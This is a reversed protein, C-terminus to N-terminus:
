KKFKLPIKNSYFNTFVSLEREDDYDVICHTEMVVGSNLYIGIYVKPNQNEIKKLLNRQPTDIGINLKINIKAKSDSNLIESENVKINFKTKDNIDKKITQKKGFDYIEDTVNHYTLKNKKNKKHSLYDMLINENSKCNQVGYISLRVPKVETAIELGDITKVILNYDNKVVFADKGYLGYISLFSLNYLNDININCVVELDGLISYFLKRLYSIEKIPKNTLITSYVLYSTMLGIMDEKKYNALCYKAMDEDKNVFILHRVNFMNHRTNQPNWYYKVNSLKISYKKNVNNSILISHYARKLGPNTEYDYIRRYTFNNFQELYFSLMKFEENTIELSTKIKSLDSSILKLLLTNNTAIYVSNINHTIIRKILNILFDVVASDKSKPYQKYYDIFISPTIIKHKIRKLDSNSLYGCTTIKTNNPKKSSSVDVDSDKYLYGHVGVIFNKGKTQMDIYLTVNNM